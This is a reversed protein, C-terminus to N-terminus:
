ESRWGLPLGWQKFKSGWRSCIIHPMNQRAKCVKQWLPISCEKWSCRFSFGWLVPWSTLGNVGNLCYSLELLGWWLMPPQTLWGWWGVQDSWLLFTTCAPQLQKPLSTSNPLLWLQGGPCPLQRPWLLSRRSDRSPLPESQVQQLFFPLQWHWWPPVPLSLHQTFIVNSVVWFFFPVIGGRPLILLDTGHYLLYLVELIIFQLSIIM